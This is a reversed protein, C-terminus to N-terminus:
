HVYKGHYADLEKCPISLVRGFLQATSYDNKQEAEFQFYKDLLIHCLFDTGVFALGREFLRSGSLDTM